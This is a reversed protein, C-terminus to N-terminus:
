AQKLNHTPNFLKADVTQIKLETRAMELVSDNDDYLRVMAGWRSRPIRLSHLYNWIKSYKYEADPRNDDLARSMLAHYPLNHLKLFQIDAYSMVRATCIAQTNNAVTRRMKAALPLLSDQAIKEPTCNDKWHALDLNGNPLTCQRHSSDIVTHDLDWLIIM